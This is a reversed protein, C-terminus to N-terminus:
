LRALTVGDASTEVKVTKTQPGGAGPFTIKLTQTGVPVDLFAVRARGGFATSVNLTATAVVDGAAGFFFPGLGVPNGGGDVLQVDALPIGELPQGNADIMTAFVVALGAGPTLSLTTYQRLADAAAVIRLNATTAAPGVSVKPNRTARYDPLSTVIFQLASNHAVSFSYGGAASTTTTIQPTTHESAVGAGAVATVAFDDLVTGSLTVSGGLEDTSSSCAVLSLVAGGFLWLLPSRRM